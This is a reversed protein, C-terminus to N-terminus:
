QRDQVAEEDGQHILTKADNLGSRFGKDMINLTGELSQVIDTNLKCWNFIKELKSIIEYDPVSLNEVNLGVLKAVTTRFNLLQLLFSSFHNLFSILCQYIM